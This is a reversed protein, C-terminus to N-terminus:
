RFAWGFGKMPGCLALRDDGLVPAGFLSEGVEGCSVFSHTPVSARRGIRTWNASSALCESEFVPDVAAADRVPGHRRREIPCLKADSAACLRPSAAASRAPSRTSGLWGSAERPRSSNYGPRSSGSPKRRPTRWRPARSARTWSPGPTSTCSSTGRQRHDGPGPIPRPGAAVLRDAVEAPVGM